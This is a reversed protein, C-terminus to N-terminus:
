PAGHYKAAIKALKATNTYILIESGDPCVADRDPEGVVSTIEQRTVTPQGSTSDVFFFRGRNMSGYDRNTLWEYPGHGVYDLQILLLPRSSTLELRRADFYSSYGVDMGAPLLRNLCKTEQDQYALYRAPSAPAIVVFAVVLSVVLAGATAIGIPRMRPARLMLPAICLPEVLIPWVYLWKLIFLALAALLGVIPFLGLYLLVWRRRDLPQRRRIVRIASVVSRVFLVVAVAFGVVVLVISFGAQDATTLNESLSQLRSQLQSADIYSLPSAAQLGSFFLILVSGAVALVAATVIAPRAISRVGLRIWCVLGVLVVAPLAFVLTLPNSAVTLALGLGILVLPVLRQTLYLLPWAILALYMGFYYTPALQFEFLQINGVLPLLVLPSSAVLARALRTGFSETTYILRIVAFLVIFLVVVNIMAVIVFYLQVGGGAILYALLSIPIEPFVFVQPSFTWDLPHGRFVDQAFQFLVSNDSSGLEWTIPWNGSQAGGARILFVAATVAAVGVAAAVVVGLRELQGRSM